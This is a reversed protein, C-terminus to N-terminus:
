ITGEWFEEDDQCKCAESVRGCKPCIFEEYLDYDGLLM